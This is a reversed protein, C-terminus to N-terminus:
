AWAGGDRYGGSGVTPPLKEWCSMQYSWFHQHKSNPGPKPKPKPTQMKLIWGCHRLLLPHRYSRKKSIEPM